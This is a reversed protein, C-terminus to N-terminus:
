QGAEVTNDVATEVTTLASVPFFCFMVLDDAGTNRTRHPQGPSVVIVDGPGAPWTQDGATFEGSGALILMVEACDPHTHPGRAAAGAREPPIVVRRATVDYGGDASILDTATRGPLSLVRGQGAYIVATV